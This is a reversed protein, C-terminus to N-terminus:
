NRQYCFSNAEAKANEEEVDHMVQATQQMAQGVNSIAKGMAGLNADPVRMEPIGRGGSVTQREEYIPIRAM